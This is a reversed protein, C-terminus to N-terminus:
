DNYNTLREYAQFFELQEFKKEEYDAAAYRVATKAIQKVEKGDLGKPNTKKNFKTDTILQKIDSKRTNIEKNLRTLQELLQEASLVPKEGAEIDTQDLLEGTEANVFLTM